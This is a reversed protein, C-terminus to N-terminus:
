REALWIDQLVQVPKASTRGGATLTVMYTGAEVAGGGGSGGRGGAQEPALNWMVRNIGAARPGDLTRIVRGTADAITIKVDGSSPAPLYYNIAAGRAPNEGAFVKQGGVQQGSQRDNLYAVAPRIDFLVPAQPPATATIQQLPTIDDAIWIGRAHTAVILDNDRRHVLIDDVRATPLNNMFKQWKRGGDLSVYLGFETGVYLLNRSRPDERVVNIHGTRPLDNVISDWTQGYDRTVFLYPKLDDDRHGDVAVYATGADFHSADIRSIWYVHNAPLGRINRGVETFTGGGDRSVQV